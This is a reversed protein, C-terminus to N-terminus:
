DRAFVRELHRDVSAATGEFDDWLLAHGAGPVIEVTADKAIAAIRHSREPPTSRDADGVRLLIPIELAAVAALLNPARAFAELEQALNERSTAAGWALVDAVAVSSRRTLDTLMVQELVPEVPAESRLIVAYGHLPAAEDPTVDALGGLAAIGRVRIRGRTAIAFSRYSGGSAGIFAADRVGHAELADELMRHSEDLDYPLSEASRGYGPLDVLVVRFRRSLRESLAAFYARTMPAGHLLVVAPGTGIMDVHLVM